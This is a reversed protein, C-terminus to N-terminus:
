ELEIICTSSGLSMSLRITAGDGTLGLRLEGDDNADSLDLHQGGVGPQAGIDVECRDQRLRLVVRDVDPPVEFSCVRTTDDLLFRRGDFCDSDPEIEDPEIERGIGPVRGLLGDLWEIGAADKPDARGRDSSVGVSLAFLAVVLAGLLGLLLM